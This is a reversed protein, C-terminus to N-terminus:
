GQLYKIFLILCPLALIHKFVLYLTGFSCAHPMRLTRSCHTAGFRYRLGYCASGLAALPVGM